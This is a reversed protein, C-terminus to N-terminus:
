GCLDYKSNLTLIKFRLFKKFYCNVVNKYKIKNHSIKEIFASFTNCSIDGIDNAKKCFLSNSFMDYISFQLVRNLIHFDTSLNELYKIITNKANTVVNQEAHLRVLCFDINKLIKVKKYKKIVAQVYAVLDNEANRDECSKLFMYRKTNKFKISSADTFYSLIKQLGNKNSTNGLRKKLCQTTNIKNKVFFSLTFLQKVAHVYSLNYNSFKTPKYTHNLLIISYQISTIYYNEKNLFSLFYYIEEGYKNHILAIELNHRSISNNRNIGRVSSSNICSVNSSDKNKKKIKKILYCIRQIMKNHENNQSGGGELGKEKKKLDMYKKYDAFFNHLFSKELINKIFDKSIRKEKEMDKLVLLNLHKTEDSKKFHTDIIFENSAFNYIFSFCFYLFLLSIINEIKSSLNNLNSICYSVDILLTYIMNRLVIKETMNEKYIKQMLNLTYCMSKIIKMTLEIKLLQCNEEINTYYDMNSFLTIKIENESFNSCTIDKAIKNSKKLIYPINEFLVYSSPINIESENNKVEKEVNAEINKGSRLICIIKKLSLNNNVVFEFESDYSKRLHSALVDKIEQQILSSEMCDSLNEIEIIKELFTSNNKLLLILEYINLLFNTLGFYEIKNLFCYTKHQKDILNFICLLVNIINAYFFNLNKLYLSRKMSVYFSLCVEHSLDEQEILNNLRRLNEKIEKRGSCCALFETEMASFLRLNSIDKKINEYFCSPLFNCAEEISMSCKEINEINYRKKIMAYIKRVTVITYIIYMYQVYNTSKIDELSNLTKFLTKEKFKNKEIQVDEIRYSKIEDKILDLCKDCQQISDDLNNTLLYLLSLNSLVKIHEERILENGTSIHSTISKLTELCSTFDSNKFFLKKAKEILIILFFNKTSSYNSLTKKLNRSERAPLENRKLQTFKLEIVKNQTITGRLIPINKKTSNELTNLMPMSNKNSEEEDELCREYSCSQNSENNRIKEEKDIGKDNKSGGIKPVEGTKGDKCKNEEIVEVVQAVQTEEGTGKEEYISDIVRKKVSEKQIRLQENKIQEIESQIRQADEELKKSFDEKSTKDRKLMKKLHDLSKMRRNSIINKFKQEQIIIKNKEEKTCKLLNPYKKNKYSVFMSFFYLHGWLKKERKKLHLIIIEKNKRIKIDEKNISIKDYLDINIAYNKDAVKIYVETILINQARDIELPCDGKSLFDENHIFSSFVNEYNKAKKITIEIDDFNEKWNLEM